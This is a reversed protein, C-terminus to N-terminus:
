ITVSEFLLLLHLEEILMEQLSSVGCLILEFYIKKEVMLKRQRKLAM